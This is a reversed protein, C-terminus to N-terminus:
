GVEAVCMQDSMKESFLFRGRQAVFAEGARQLDQQCGIDYWAGTHRYAHIPMGSSLMRAVLDDVGCARDSPILKLTSRSVAYIGSSIPMTLTPKETFGTVRDDGDIEIVGDAVLIERQCTAITLGCGSSQHAKLCAAFDMDTLLDCNMVLFSDPLQDAVLLLPGITGLPRDESSYRIRAGFRDGNGFYARVLDDRYRVALIVRDFGLAVLQRVVIELIPVDGVPLLPKPLVDTYPRLRTGLGGALIVACSGDAM